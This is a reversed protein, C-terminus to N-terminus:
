RNERRAKLSAAIEASVAAWRAADDAPDLETTAPTNVLYVEDSTRQDRM